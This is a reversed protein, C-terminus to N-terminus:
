VIRDTNVGASRANSLDRVTGRDRGGPERSRMFPLNLVSWFWDQGPGETSLPDHLNPSTGTRKGFDGTERPCIDRDLM